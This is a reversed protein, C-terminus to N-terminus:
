LHEAKGTAFIVADFTQNTGDKFEAGTATFRMVEGKMYDSYYPQYRRISLTVQNAVKSIHKKLDLGSAGNGIVLVTKDTQHQISLMKTLIETQKKM